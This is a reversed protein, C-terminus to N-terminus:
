RKKKKLYSMKINGMRIGLFVSLEFYLPTPAPRRIREHTKRKGDRPTVDENAKEEKSRSINPM